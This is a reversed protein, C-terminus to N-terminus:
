RLPIALEEQVRRLKLRQNVPKVEAPNVGMRLETPVILGLVSSGAWFPNQGEGKGNEANYWEYLGAPNSAATLWKAALDSAVNRFGYDHLGHIILYNWHPWMGGCWNSHGSGLAYLVDAGAPPEYRQTYLPETRAYSPLPLPTAFEGPNKLHKEVLEEAQAKSAIGAWLTLFTAGSRVKIPNGTRRDRDYFFTDAKDWRDQVRLKKLDAEKAFKTAMEKAGRVRALESAARCEMHLYCNLDVGECYSSRWTGARTMQTDAGSHPASRWESLGNGDSDQAKLWYDLYRELRMLDDPSLWSADGNVRSVLLALQCLFPKCHEENEFRGWGTQATTPDTVIRRCIFGDDRQAELFMRIGHIAPQHLGYYLLAIGDFYLEWDYLVDGYSSPYTRGTRAQQRLGKEKMLRGYRAVLDKTAPTPESATDGVEEVVERARVGSPRALAFALTSVSAVATELFERRQVPPHESDSM